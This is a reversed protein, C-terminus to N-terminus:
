IFMYLIIFHIIYTLIIFKFIINYILIKEVEDVDEFVYDFEMILVIDLM